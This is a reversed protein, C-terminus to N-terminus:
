DHYGIFLFDLVSTLKYRNLLRMIVYEHNNVYDDYFVFLVFPPPLSFSSTVGIDCCVFAHM